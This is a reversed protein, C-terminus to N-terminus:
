PKFANMYCNRSVRQNEEYKKLEGPFPFAWSRTIAQLNDTMAYIWHREIIVNYALPCEIVLFKTHLNVEDDYVPLMM